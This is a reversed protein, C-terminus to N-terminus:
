EIMIENDLFNKERKILKLIECNLVDQIIVCCDRNLRWRAIKVFLFFFFQLELCNRNEDWRKLLKKKKKKRIQVECRTCFWTRTPCVPPYWLIVKWDNEYTSELFPASTSRERSRITAHFRSMTACRTGLSPCETHARKAVHCAFIVRRNGPVSPGKLRLFSQCTIPGRFELLGRQDQGEVPQTSVVFSIRGVFRVNVRRKCLRKSVGDVPKRRRRKSRGRKGEVRERQM